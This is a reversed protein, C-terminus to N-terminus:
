FTRLLRRRQSDSRALKLLDSPAVERSPRSGIFEDLRRALTSACAKPWCGIANILMLSRCCPKPISLVLSPASVSQFQSQAKPQLWSAALQSCGRSQRLRFSRAAASLATSLPKSGALKDTLRCEAPLLLLLALLALTHALSGLQLCLWGGFACDSDSGCGCGCGALPLCCRKSRFASRMATSIMRANCQM